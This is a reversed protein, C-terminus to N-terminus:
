RRSQAVAKTGTMSEINPELSEVITERSEVMDEQLLSLQYQHIKHPPVSQRGLAKVEWKSARKPRRHFFYAL